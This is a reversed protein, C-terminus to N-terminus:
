INEFLKLNSYIRKREAANKLMQKTNASKRKGSILLAAYKGTEAIWGVPLFMRHRNIFPYDSCVKSNLTRMGQKFIGDSTVTHEGRESIYKIERYRNIDKKGFNGGNLIDEMLGQLTAEDVKKSEIAEIAWSRKPANLYKIGLMTLVQAFRWLGFGKLKNEFIERFQEDSLSSAFVVWDCLHRLGVGESTLHSATHLLMILGHHFRNPVRCTFGDIKVIEATAITRDLEAQIKEGVINKPVGNVSSHMEWISMPTRKYAIHIDDEGGHEVSFGISELLKGVKSVKGKEVLFDVDGMARLSPESYYMASALGKMAVYPMDNATMLKHLEGHEVFNQTGNIAYRFFEGNYTEFQEVRLKTKLCSKVVSFFLPFVAQAKSEKVLLDIHETAISPAKGGFLAVSIVQLLLHQVNNM